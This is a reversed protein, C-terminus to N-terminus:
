NVEQNCSSTNETDKQEEEVIDDELMKIVDEYTLKKTYYFNKNLDDFLRM